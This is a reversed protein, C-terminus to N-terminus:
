LTPNQLKLKRLQLMFLVASLITAALDSVPMAYWVGDVSHEFFQPLLLVGPLFFILQRTLSLLISKGPMGISQFFASSVIQMGLFPFILVAIRLGRAAEAMLEPADAAFLSVLEEAFLQCMLCGFTTVVTAAIMTYKVATIVRDYRKAGALRANLFTADLPQRRSSFRQLAM